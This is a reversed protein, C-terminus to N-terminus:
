DGCLGYWSLGSCKGCGRDGRDAPGAISKGHRSLHAHEPQQAGVRGWRGLYARCRCDHRAGVAIALSISYSYTVTTVEPAKPKGKGGGGGETTESRTELFDSAWIVQGGVRMRGFVTSVPAGEGTETLRFRDMRGTEVVESGGGMVSQSLFRQDIVRGLTAGVARGIIATSLGAVTGGISGGLAAGAASLLITAM